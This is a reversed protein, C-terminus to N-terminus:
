QDEQAPRRHDGGALQDLIHELLPGIVAITDRVGATSGPANVVLAADPRRSTIGVLGRSLAAAPATLAGKARIQEALGDLRAALLPATAEPTLDRPSIGTGGTTLVLRAGAATATAIASRVAQIGDPVVDVGDVTLGHSKLLERALPGSRDIASGAACRDSVTVVRATITTM